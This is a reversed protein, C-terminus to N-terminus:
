FQDYAKDLAAQLQKKVQRNVEDLAKICRDKALIVIERSADTKGALRIVQKRVM